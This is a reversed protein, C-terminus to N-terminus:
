TLATLEASESVTQLELPLAGRTRLSVYFSTRGILM